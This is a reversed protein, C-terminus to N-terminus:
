TEVPVARLSPGGKKYFTEGKRIQKIKKQQQSGYVGKMGKGRLSKGRSGKGKKYSNREQKRSNSGNKEKSRREEKPAEPTKGKKGRRRLLLRGKEEKPALQTV